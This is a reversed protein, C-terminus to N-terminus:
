AVESQLWAPVVLRVGPAYGNTVRLQGRVEARVAERTEASLAEAM